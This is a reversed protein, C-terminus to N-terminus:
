ISKLGLNQLVSNELIFNKKMGDVRLLVDKLPRRSASYCPPVVPVQRDPESRYSASAGDRKKFHPDVFESDKSQEKDATRKLELKYGASAALILAYEESVVFDQSIEGNITQDNEDGGVSVELVSDQSDQRSLHSKVSETIHTLTTSFQSSSNVRSRDPTIM